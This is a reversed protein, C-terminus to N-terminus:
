KCLIKELNKNLEKTNKHKSTKERLYYITPNQKLESQFYKDEKKGSSSLGYGSLIMVKLYKSIKM